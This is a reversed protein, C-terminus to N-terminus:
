PELGRLIEVQRELVGRVTSVRRLLKEPSKQPRADLVQKVLYVLRPNQVTEPEEGARELEKLLHEEAQQYERQAQAAEHLLNAVKQGKTPWHRRFSELDDRDLAEMRKQRDQERRWPAEERNLVIALAFDLLGETTPHSMHPAKIVSWGNENRTAWGMRPPIEDRNVLGSPTAFYLRSVFPLYREYKGTTVDARFDERTVKVEWCTASIGKMQRSKGMCAVDMQGNVGWSGISLRTVAIRNSQERYDRLDEALADHEWESM